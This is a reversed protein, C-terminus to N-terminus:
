NDFKIQLYYIIISISFLAEEKNTCVDTLLNKTPSHLGLYPTEDSYYVFQLKNLKILLLKILEFM